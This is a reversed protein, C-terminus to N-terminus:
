GIRSKNYCFLYRSKLEMPFPNFIVFGAKKYPLIFFFALRGHCM